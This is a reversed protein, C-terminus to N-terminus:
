LCRTSGFDSRPAHPRATRTSATRGAVEIPWPVSSGIRALLPVNKSEDWLRGAALIFNDKPTEVNKEAIGNEAIGNWITSGTTKPWYLQEITKRFVATPAVWRDAASLGTRVNAIYNLWRPESPDEGRCARWWSRVCSHAVVIVPARWDATAERYSNLHVVDPQVSQEIAALSDRAREYDSGEPDIWELALDTTVISLGTVAELEKIQGRRPEPGLTVLSVEHGRRCLERALLTAYSWV